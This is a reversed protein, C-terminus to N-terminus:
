KPVMRSIRCIGDHHPTALRIGDPHLALDRVSNGINFIHFEDKQDPKWFGLQGGAHGGLAGIVFGEPHWVLGWAVGNINAKTLHTVVDKGQEWDIEVVIPNGVGAFANSVNTIGGALLRKGDSTFALSHPGGYDALFGADYKTLSAVAFNRGAAGTAVDWDFFKGVLDGSVLRQGSPHFVVNYIHREHGVFERVFAGDSMQWLKVKLDNGCSALFRGDPSVSVARIWGSHADITRVPKLEPPPAPKGEAPPAVPTAEAAAAWWVLRGDYGGTVLVDGALSFGFSRVWSDHAPLVAKTETALDWRLVKNDQSGAFVFRGAPDFRCSILPAEHKLSQAVHTLLPDASM